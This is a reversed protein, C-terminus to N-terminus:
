DSVTLLNNVVVLYISIELPIDLEGVCPKQSFHNIPLSNFFLHAGFANLQAEAEDVFELVDKLEFPDKVVVATVVRRM